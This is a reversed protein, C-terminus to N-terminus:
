FKAWVVTRCKSLHSVCPTSIAVSAPSLDYRYRPISYNRTHSHGRALRQVYRAEGRFAIEREGDDQLLESWLLPLDSGSAEPPLDIGRGSVNPYENLIVRLLGYLPAQGCAVAEMGRSPSQAGRTVLDIRLKSLPKIEEVAQILHLLADTGM